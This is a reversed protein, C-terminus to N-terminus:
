SIYANSQPLQEYKLPVGWVCHRGTQLTELLNQYRQPNAEILVVDKIGLDSYAKTECGEWAGFPLGFFKYLDEYRSIEFQKIKEKTSM